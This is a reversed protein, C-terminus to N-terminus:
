RFRRVLNDWTPVKDVLVLWMFLKCKLPCNIKWIVRNRREIPEIVEAAYFFQYGFKPLYKGGSVNKTRIMM